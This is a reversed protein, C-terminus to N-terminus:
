DTDKVNATPDGIAKVTTREAYTYTELNPGLQPYQIWAVVWNERTAFAVTTGKTWIIKRFNNCNEMETKIQAFYANAAEVTATADNAIKPTRKCFYTEFDYNAHGAYWKDAALGEFALKAINKDYFWVDQFKSGAPVDVGTPKTATNWKVSSETVAKYLTPAIATDLTLEGTIHNKRYTNVKDLMLKQFCNDYKGVPNTTEVMCKLAPVNAKVEDATPNAKIGCIWAVVWPGDIGFGVKTASKWVLGTYNDSMTKSDSSTGKPGGTEPNYEVSGYFWYFMADGSTAL